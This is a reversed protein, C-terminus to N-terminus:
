IIMEMIESPEFGSEIGKSVIMLNRAELEKKILFALLPYPGQVHQLESKGVHDKFSSLLTKEFDYLSNTKKYLDMSKKMVGFYRTGETETVLEEVTKVKVLEDAKRFLATNNEILLNKRKEEPVKRVISKLLVLINSIDLKYNIIDVISEADFIKSNNVTEVYKNFTFNDLSTEFDELSFYDKKFVEAYETNSLVVGIDALTKAEKLQNLKELDIEGIEFLLKDDLENGTIKQRYFTKIIKAEYFMIFAKLIKQFDEPSFENLDQLQEYFTQEISSHVDHLTKANELRFYYDTERLHNILENLSKSQSLQAYRQAPVCYNTRASIRANAYLYNSVPAVKIAVFGMVALVTLVSTGLFTLSIPDFGMMKM